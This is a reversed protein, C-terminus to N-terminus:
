WYSISLINIELYSIRVATDATTMTSVSRINNISPVRGIEVVHFCGRLLSLLLYICMGRRGSYFCLLLAVDVERALLVVRADTKSLAAAVLSREGRRRKGGRGHGRLGILAVDKLYYVFSKKWFRAPQCLGMNVNSALRSQMRDVEFMWQEVCTVEVSAETFAEVSTVEVSVEVSAKTSTFQKETVRVSTKVSAKVSAKM